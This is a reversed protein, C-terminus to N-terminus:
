GGAQAKANAASVPHNHDARHGRPGLRKGIDLYARAVWHVIVRCSVADASSPTVGLKASAKGCIM